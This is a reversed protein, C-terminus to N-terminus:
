TKMPTRMSATSVADVMMVQGYLSVGVDSYWMLLYQFGPVDWVAESETVTSWSQDVDISVVQRRCM